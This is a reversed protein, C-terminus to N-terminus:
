PLKTVRIINEYDIAIISVHSAILLIFSLTSCDSVSLWYQEPTPKRPRVKIAIDNTVNNQYHYFVKDEIGRYSPINETSIKRITKFSINPFIDM